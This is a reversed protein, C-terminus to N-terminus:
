VWNLLRDLTTRLGIVYGSCDFHEPNGAKADHIAGPRGLGNMSVLEPGFCTEVKARIDM